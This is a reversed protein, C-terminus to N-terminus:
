RRPTMRLATTITVLTQLVPRYPGWHIRRIFALEDPTPDFNAKLRELDESLIVDNYPTIPQPASEGTILWRADCGLADALAFIYDAAPRTTGRAWKHVVSLAAGTTDSIDRASLGTEEMVSRMREAIQDKSTM